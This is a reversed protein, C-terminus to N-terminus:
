HSIVSNRGGAEQKRGEAKRRRGRGEARSVIWERVTWGEKTLRDAQEAGLRPSRRGLLIEGGKGVVRHWPVDDPCNRLSWVVTRVSVNAKRAVEGYTAIKGKPIRRILRQIREFVSGTVKSKKGAGREAM